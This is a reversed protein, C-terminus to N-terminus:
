KKKIIKDPNDNLYSEWGSHKKTSKKTKPTTSQPITITNQIYHCV